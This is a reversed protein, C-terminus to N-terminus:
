DFRDVAYVHKGRSTVYEEGDYKALFHAVGDQAVAEKAAEEANIRIFNQQMLEEKSYYGNDTVFYKIPSEQIETEIRNIENGIISELLQERNMNHRDILADQSKLTQRLDETTDEEWRDRDAEAQDQAIMRADTDSVYIHEDLFTQNFDEPHGEIREKVEYEAIEKAAEGSGFIRLVITDSTLEMERGHVDSWSELDEVDEVKFDYREEIEIIEAESMGTEDGIRRLADIRKQDELKPQEFSAFEKICVKCRGDTLMKGEGKCTDCLKKKGSSVRGVGKHKLRNKAKAKAIKKSHNKKQYQNAFM